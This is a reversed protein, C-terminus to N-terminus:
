HNSLDHGCLRHNQPTAAMSYFHEHVNPSFTSHSWVIPTVILPNVILPNYAQVHGGLELVCTAENVPESERLVCPLFSCWQTNLESKWCLVHSYCYYYLTTTGPLVWMISTHPVWHFSCSYHNLLLLHSPGSPEKGDLDPCVPPTTLGTPLWRRM